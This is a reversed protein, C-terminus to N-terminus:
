AFFLEITEKVTEADFALGLGAYSYGDFGKNAISALTAEAIIGLFLPPMDMISLQNDVIRIIPSKLIVPSGSSGPVTAGDVLFGRLRRRREQGNEEIFDHVPAGIRTAIIGQRVLPFVFDGHGIGTAPFGLTLVEDGMGIHHTDLTTRDAFIGYPICKLTIGPHQLVASIEIAAVDVDPDPHERWFTTGSQKDVLELEGILPSVRGNQEENVYLSVTDVIERDAKSSWLVHKNTALFMRGVGAGTKRVVAVGTGSNNWGNDILVIAQTWKELDPHM